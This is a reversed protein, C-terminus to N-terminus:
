DTELNALDLLDQPRGSARKATILDVKSIFNVSVGDVMVIERRLWADDFRVGPISMFIDVRLPARGMQYFYGEEQFDSETLGTLPAGFDKLATFVATANAGTVAVWLDLDKTFRPEAYRMFAYGGIVLYEVGYREM